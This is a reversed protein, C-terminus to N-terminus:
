HPRIDHLGPARQSKAFVPQGILDVARAVPHEHPQVGQQEVSGEATAQGAPQGSAAVADHQEVQQAMAVAVLGLVGPLVPHIYVGLLHEAQQVLEARVLHHEAPDREAGVHAQEGRNPRGLPNAAQDQLHGHELPGGRRRRQREHRQQQLRVVGTGDHPQRGQGHGQEGTDPDVRDVREQVGGRIIRRYDGGNQVADQEPGDRRGDVLAPRDRRRRKDQPVPDVQDVRELVRFPERLLERLGPQDTSAGKGLQPHLRSAQGGLDGLEEVADPRLSRDMAAALLEAVGDEIGHALVDLDPNAAFDGTLGFTIDGCYSFIAIGIRVTTAIPVYPIIEVLRRGMGYLPQRPGPVNTTVTVIERQPLGLVTRVYWSALPYPSYGGLTVLAEGALAEKSEKLDKLEARVATLREVPDAIHVPLDAILASVRNEYISEEGPARVSVPVLSPVEHPKLEEGRALLLARLGGSIAALVVDNVTGGFEGKVTKIDALSARAWAYRRQRGIQGSLSSRAAPRVSPAMKAIGRATGVAQAVTRRPDTVARGLALAQRGPLMVMDLAAQAALLVSSPEGDVAQDDAVAPVPSLEPTVSFIVRYLDTSSVGDVMCHHIKSILAWRDGALGEVMWYEWLPHDRDLRQSMVRAMLEALQQDGGPEPLATFRVHYRLDFAPDEVWVPRGLRFPVTRLKRRYLPVEALRGAIYALFEKRSPIPGEFVATSAIAMNTHRDEDEADVFVADLPNLRDM